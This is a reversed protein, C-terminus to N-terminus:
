TVSWLCDETKLSIHKQYCVMRFFCILFTEKDVLYFVPYNNGNKCQVAFQVSSTFIPVHTNKFVSAVSSMPSYGSWSVSFAIFSSVQCCHWTNVITHKVFICNLISKCKCAVTSIWKTHLGNQGENLLLQFMQMKPVNKFTSVAKQYSRHNKSFYQKKNQVGLLSSWTQEDTLFSHFHEQHM